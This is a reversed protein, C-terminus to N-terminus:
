RERGPRDFVLGGAAFLAAGAAILTMSPRMVSQCRMTAMSCLGILTGPTFVVLLASGIMALYLGRRVKADTIIWAAAAEAAILIMEGMIARGAWHCAGFTGDEHVCPGLFTMCGIAGIAALAMVIIPWFTRKKTMDM